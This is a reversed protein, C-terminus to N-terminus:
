QGRDLLVEAEKETQRSMSQLDVVREGCGPPRVLSYCHDPARRTRHPRATAGPCQTPEDVELRLCHLGLWLPRHRVFFPKKLLYEGRVM